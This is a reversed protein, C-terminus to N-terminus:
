SRLAAIVENAFREITAVTGFDHFQCIFGEVGRAAEAALADAVETATGAIVGGWSGVRREVTERVADREAASAALGIPHQASVRASGALPRLEDLRALAYGPCNWWDAYGAVLPMTFRPGGGGIHIPVRPQVPVPRGIADTMSVFEGTYSFSEGAFMLQLVDLTERLRAARVRAPESSVGYRALEDPVSGWGIGLDLRGGSIVDLTAAAKALVAPHRFPDCLVL